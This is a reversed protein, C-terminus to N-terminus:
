DPYSYTQVQHDVPEVTLLFEHIASLDRDTMGASTRWPMVTVDSEEAGEPTRGERYAQFIRLFDDTDRPLVGTEHTTINSSRVIVDGMPYEDGGGFNKLHCSECGGIRTLYRGYALRDSPSPASVREEIPAPSHETIINVPFQIRKELRTEQRVPELTKIYAVIAEADEDSLDGERAVRVLEEDPPAAWLFFALRSALDPDDLEYVVGADIRDPDAAAAHAPRM